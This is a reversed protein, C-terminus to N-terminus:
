VQFSGWRLASNTNQSTTWENFFFWDKQDAQIVQCLGWFNSAKNLWHHHEGRSVFSKVTLGLAEAWDNLRTQSKAAGHAAARWAERDMVLKWLKSLSMNMSDTVGDVMEDETSGKLYNINRHTFPLPPLLWEKDQSRLFIQQFQYVERQVCVCVFASIKIETIRGTFRINGERKLLKWFYLWYGSFNAMM